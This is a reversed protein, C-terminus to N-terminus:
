ATLEFLQTLDNLALLKPKGTSQILDASFASLTDISPAEDPTLIEAFNKIAEIGLSAELSSSLIARVGDLKAQEILSYLKDLSGLVMPKIVIAALGPTATFLYDARNLTEDLAYQIGTAQYFSQNDEPRSCPEEIYDIAEKPLSSGLTIATDLDLGQNADLRIKLSPKHALLNHILEIEQQLSTQAVKVKVFHTSDDILSGLRQEFEAQTEGEVQYILPITKTVRRAPTLQNQTQYYLTSLGYALSPLKTSNAEDLLGKVSKGILQKAINTISLKVEELSDHSFSTIAEGDVDFGSLPSIEVQYSQTNGDTSQVNISLVLGERKDIRQIGVPLPRLLPIHYQHLRISQIIM